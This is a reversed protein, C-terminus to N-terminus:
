NGADASAPNETIRHSQPYEKDIWAYVSSKRWSASSQMNPGSKLPPPFATIVTKVHLDTRSRVINAAQLDSFTFFEYNSDGM